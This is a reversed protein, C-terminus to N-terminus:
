VTPPARARFPLQPRAGDPADVHLQYRVRTSVIRIAAIPVAQPVAAAGMNTVACIACYEFTPRNSTPAAPDGAQPDAFTQDHLAQSLTGSLRLPDFTHAHGFSLVLQMAVALLACWAGLRLNTRVWRM